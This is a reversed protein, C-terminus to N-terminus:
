HLRRNPPLHFIVSQQKLLVTKKVIQNHVNIYMKMLNAVLYTGAHNANLSNPKLVNYKVYQSEHLQIHVKLPGYNMSPASPACQM